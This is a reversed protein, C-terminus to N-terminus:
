GLCWVDGKVVLNRHKLAQCLMTECGWTKSTSPHKPFPVSRQPQWELGLMTAQPKEPTRGRRKSDVEVKGITSEVIAIRGLEPIESPHSKAAVFDPAAM